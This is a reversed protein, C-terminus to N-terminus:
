KSGPNPRCIWDGAMKRRQIDPTMTALPAPAKNGAQSTRRHAGSGSAPKSHAHSRVIRQASRTAQWAKRCPWCAGGPKNNNAAQSRRGAGVGDMRRLFLQLHKKFSGHKTHRVRGGRLHTHTHRQRHLIAQSVATHTRSGSSSAPTEPCHGTSQSEHPRCRTM